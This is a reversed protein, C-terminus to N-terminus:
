ELTIFTYSLGNKKVLANSQSLLNEKIKYVYQLLIFIKNSTREFFTELFNITQLNLTMKMM